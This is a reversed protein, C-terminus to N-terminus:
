KGKVANRVIVVGGNPGPVSGKVLLLGREVDADVVELNLTTVQEHGLHGAMRLGKLVRGPFSCSGISGPARHHKHNGHSAGQGGFNHRKMGGAFGKGRSVATVDVKQGKELVDVKIEQGVEFGDVSDLRLEVLRRGADVGAKEFHGAEPKTLKKADKRGYTVQLASYGDRESTKVQVIRAPEVRLVTVPVVRNDDAWVQTMGVKEGVIATKAM